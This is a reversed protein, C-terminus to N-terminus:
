FDKRHLANGLDDGAIRQSRKDDRVRGVQEVTVHEDDRRLDDRLGLTLDDVDVALDAISASVTRTTARRPSVRITAVRCPNTM